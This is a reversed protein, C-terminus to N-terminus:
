IPWSQISEVNWTAIGLVSNLMRSEVLDLFKGAPMIICDALQEM